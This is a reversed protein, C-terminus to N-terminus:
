PADTEGKPTGPNARTLDDQLKQFQVELRDTLANIREQDGQTLAAFWLLVFARVEFFDMDPGELNFTQDDVTITVLTLTM